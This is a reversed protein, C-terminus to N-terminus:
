TPAALTREPLPMFYLLTAGLGTCTMYYYSADRHPRPARLGGRRRRRECVHAAASFRRRGLRRAHPQDGEPLTRGARGPQDGFVRTAQRRPRSLLCRLVGALGMSAQVSPFPPRAGSHGWRRRLIYSHRPDAAHHAAAHPAAVVPHGEAAAAGEQLLASLSFVGGSSDCFTQLTIESFITNYLIVQSVHNYMGSFNTRYVLRMGPALHVMQQLDTYLDGSAEVHHQRLAGVIAGAEREPLPEAVPESKVFVIEYVRVLAFLVCIAKRLSKRSIIFLKEDHQQQQQPLPTLHQPDDLVQCQENYAHHAMVGLRAMLAKLIQLVAEHKKPGGCPEFSSLVPGWHLQLCEMQDFLQRLTLQAIPVHPYLHVLPVSPILNPGVAERYTALEPQAAEALCCLIGLVHMRNMDCCQDLPPAVCNSEWLWERWVKQKTEMSWSGLTEYLKEM